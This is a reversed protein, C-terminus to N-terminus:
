RGGITHPKLHAYRPKLGAMLRAYAPNNRLSLDAQELREREFAVKATETDSARARLAIQDADSSLVLEQVALARIYDQATIPLDNYDLQLVVDVYMHAAEINYTHRVPDYMRRGRRVYPERQDSTDAKLTDQPLIFEQTASPLLKLRRDTNFWHGRVQVTRNVRSLIPESRILGPHRGVTSTIGSSGIAALMANLIDLKVDM